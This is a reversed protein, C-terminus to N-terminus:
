KRYCTDMNLVCNGLRSINCCKTIKVQHPHNEIDAVYGGVIRDEDDTGDIDIIDEDDVLFVCM